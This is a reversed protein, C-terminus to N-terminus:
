PPMTSGPRRLRIIPTTLLTAAHCVKNLKAIRHVSIGHPTARGEGFAFARRRATLLAPPGEPSDEPL